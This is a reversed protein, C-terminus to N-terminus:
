GMATKSLRTSLWSVAIKRTFVRRSPTSRTRIKRTAAESPMRRSVASPFSGSAIRVSSRRKTPVGILMPAHCSSAHRSAASNGAEDVSGAARAARESTVVSPLCDASAFSIATTTGSRQEPDIGAEALLMLARGYSRDVVLDDVREFLERLVLSQDFKGFAEVFVKRTEPGLRKFSAHSANSILDCVQLERWRKGSGLKVSAVKWDALDVALGRRVAIFALAKQIREDYEAERLFIPSGDSGKGLLVVAGRLYLDVRPEGKSSLERLVRLVLEAVMQTYTTVRDGYRVGELNVLRVPQFGRPHLESLLKRILPEYSQQAIEKGHVEDGLHLGAAKHAQELVAQAVSETLANHPVLLGALQSAFGQYLDLEEVRTSTEMFRGSEDFWLDYAVRKPESDEGRSGSVTSRTSM